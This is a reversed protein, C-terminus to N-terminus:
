QPQYVFNWDSYHQANTFNALETSFGGQKLPKVSSASRVGILDGAENRVLVWMGDDTMPDRYMKRLPRATRVRRTDLLLDKLERPYGKASGPSNLYYDKIADRYATGRWLLELEKDRREAILTNEMARLSLISAIAVFFLAVVYSFGGQRM